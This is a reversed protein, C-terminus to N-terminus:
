GHGPAATRFRRVAVTFCFPDMVRMGPISTSASLRTLRASRAVQENPRAERDLYSEPVAQRVSRRLELADLGDMLIRLLNAGFRSRSGIQAALALELLAGLRPRPDENPYYSCFVVAAEWEPDVDDAVLRVMQDLRMM